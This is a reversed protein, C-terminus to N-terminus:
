IVSTPFPAWLCLSIQLLECLSIGDLVPELDQQKRSVLTNKGSAVSGAAGTVHLGLGVWIPSFLKLLKSALYNKRKSFILSRIPAFPQGPADWLSAESKSKALGSWRAGVLPLPSFPQLFPVSCASQVEEGVLTRLEPCSKM